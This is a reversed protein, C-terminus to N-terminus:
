EFDPYVGGYEGTIMRSVIKAPPYVGGPEALRNLGTLKGVYIHEENPKWIWWKESIKISPNGIDSSSRFLIKDFTGIDVSKGVKEWCERKIGAATDCHAYFDVEDSVIENIDPNYEIDYKKKFARVIDSNLQTLDRGIYQLYKKSTDFKVCFVDGIKTIVRKAMPEINKDNLITFTGINKLM